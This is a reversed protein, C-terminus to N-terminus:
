DETVVIQSLDQSESPYRINFGGACVLLYYIMRFGTLFM